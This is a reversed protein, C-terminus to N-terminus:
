KAKERFTRLFDYGALVLTLLVVAGLDVRPVEIVLIALFGALIAFAAIAIIKDRM